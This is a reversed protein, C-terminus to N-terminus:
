NSPQKLKLLLFCFAQQRGVALFEKKGLSNISVVTAGAVGSSSLRTGNNLSSLSASASHLRKAQRRQHHHSPLLHHSVSAGLL